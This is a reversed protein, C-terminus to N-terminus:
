DGRTLSKPLGEEDDWGDDGEEMVKVSSDTYLVVVTDEHGGEEADSEDTVMFKDSALPALKTPKATVRSWAYDNTDESLVIRKSGEAKEATLSNGAPCDFVEAPLHKGHRSRILKNLADEPTGDDVSRPFANEVAAYDNAASFIQKLNNTCKVTWAHSRGKLLVPVVLGAIIAIISIVVLLEVLTFGHRPNPSRNM